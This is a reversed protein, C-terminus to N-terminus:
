REVRMSARGSLEVVYGGFVPAGVRHSLRVVVTAARGVVDPRTVTIRAADARPGLATRAASVAVQPDASTAAHRAGERAANVVELQTRAVVAIEVVALIVLLLVPLLLAFEITATGREGSM